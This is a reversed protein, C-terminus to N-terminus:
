DVYKVLKHAHPFSFDASFILYLVSSGVLPLQKLVQSRSSCSWSFFCKKPLRALYTSLLYLSHWRSVNLPLIYIPITWFGALDIFNNNHELHSGSPLHLGSDLRPKEKGQLVMFLDTSSGSTIKANRFVQLWVGLISTCFKM